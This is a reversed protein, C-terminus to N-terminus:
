FIHLLKELLRLAKSNQQRKQVLPTAPTKHPIKAAQSLSMNGWLHSPCQKSKTRRSEPERSLFEDNHTSHEALEEKRETVGKRRIAFSKEHNDKGRSNSKTEEENRLPNM